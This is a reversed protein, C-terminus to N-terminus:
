QARSDAAHSHRPEHVYRGFSTRAAHSLPQAASRCFPAVRQCARRSCVSGADCTRNDGACDGDRCPQNVIGLITNSSRCWVALRHLSGTTFVAAELDAAIDRRFEYSNAYTRM